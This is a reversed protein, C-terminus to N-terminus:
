IGSSPEALDAVRWESCGRLVKNELVAALDIEAISIKAKKKTKM